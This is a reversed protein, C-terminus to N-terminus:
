CLTLLWERCSLLVRKFHEGANLHESFMSIIRLANLAGLYDWYYYSINRKGGAQRHWQQTVLHNPLIGAHTTEPFRTRSPDQFLGELGTDEVSLNSKQRVDKPHHSDRKWLGIRAHSSCFLSLLTQAIRLM